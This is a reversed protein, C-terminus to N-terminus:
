DLSNDVREIQKCKGCKRMSVNEWVHSCKDYGSELKKLDSVKLHNAEELLREAEEKTKQRCALYAGEINRVSLLKEKPLSFERSARGITKYKSVAGQSMGLEELFTEEDGYQSINFAGTEYVEDLVLCLEITAERGVGALAIAKQCLQYDKSEKTKKM